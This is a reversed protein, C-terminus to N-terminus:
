AVAEAATIENVLDGIIDLKEDAIGQERFQTRRREIEAICSGGPFRKALARRAHEPGMTDYLRKRLATDLPSTNLAWMEIPGLTNCLLQTFSGKETRWWALLYAGAATPKNLRTAMLRAATDSLGFVETAQKVASGAGAGMIFVSTALSAMVPDFDELAQSFLGVGVGWKRGERIDILVQDRVASQGATRHFEDYVLLKPTERVMRVREVHYSRYAEPISPIDDETHYFHGAVLHRALMYMVQTQRSAADGGRPAVENLDVSVIRTEGIDFRTHRGLIPYERVAETICRWMYETMTEGNPVTGKYISAINPSRVVGACDPLTPVAYRQALMASHTDGATFLADVIERWTTADDVQVGIEQIREDLDRNIRAVYRKPNQQLVRYAEDIVYGALGAIGDYPKGGVPSALLTLFNVLFSRHSPFPATAGLPLDFPNVSYEETMRIRFYGALHQQELPLAGRLLSILGSSSPGIDVISIMPLHEIGEQLCLSLDLSSAFVSKGSGMPAFGLIINAAQKSSGPQYPLPKGDPSRLLMAGQEWPSGPRTIPLMRLAEEIPACSTPAISGTTFAPVTTFYGALPDGTVEGVDCGGWGQIARALVAARSRLTERDDAWTCFMVRLQVLTENALARARLEDAATAIQKNETSTPDFKLARAFQGKTKVADLGGGDILFSVRWPVKTTVMRALLAQFPQVETPGLAMMLPTYLRTGVRVCRMDEIVADRAVLQSPLSPWLLDGLTPNPWPMRMPLRDGPLLPQWTEATFDPDVYRRTTRLAERVDLLRVRISVQELDGILARVFSAHRDRLADMAAFLNQTDRGRPAKASAKAQRKISGKVEAKTLSSPRTWLVMLVQESACYKAIHAEREAFLDDLRLGFRQATARAGNQARHIDDMAKDPEWQGIVQITHGSRALAANLGQQVRGIILDFEQAGVVNQSGGIEIMSGLSGDTAVFVGENDVTELDCYARPNAAFMSGVWAFSAELFSTVGNSM